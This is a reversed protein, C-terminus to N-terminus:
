NATVSVIQPWPYFVLGDYIGGDRACGRLFDQWNVGSPLTVTFTGNGSVTVTLQSPM